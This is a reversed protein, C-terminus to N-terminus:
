LESTEDSRIRGFILLDHWEGDLYRAERLRGELSFGHRLFFSHAASNHAESEVTLRHLNWQDFAAEIITSLVDAGIGRRRWSAALFMSLVCSREIAAVRSLVVLGCQDGDLSEVILAVPHDWLQEEVLWEEIRRITASRSPAAAGYGWARMLEPDCLWAHITDIDSRDVARLNVLAGQIM